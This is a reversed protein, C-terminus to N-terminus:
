DYRVMFLRAFAGRYEKLKKYQNAAANAKAYTEYFGSVLLKERPHDPSLWLYTGKPFTKPIEELDEFRALQVVYLNTPVGNGKIEPNERYPVEKELRFSEGDRTLGSREKIQASLEISSALMLIAFTLFINRINRMNRLYLTYM